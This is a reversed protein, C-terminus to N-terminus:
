QPRSQGRAQMQQLIFTYSVYYKYINAVYRVTEQGIDRAAIMEVNGFWKNPDLGRQEAMRRLRSIRAPGANYAAFAFLGRNIRDVGGEDKLQDEIFRLYKAGAEINRDASGQVGKIFVPPGEATSPKIQMVGVAGVPSVRTQDIGSEQYAQAALLLWPFDYKDGYRKFFDVTKQFRAVDANARANKVWKTNQFYKRVLINYTASGKSNAAIFANVAELLQPADKRVAWAIEGGSRLVVDRQVNMQTFLTSWLDAIHNDVVTAPILSANVMELLDDEELQEDAEVIRVPPRGAAKLRSNLEVLSEFYSSSKRVHVERGSLEEPTAVPPVGPALVLVERVDSAWPTSFTASKAREQTITLNAAAIDGLGAALGSFLQDHRVPIFAVHVAVTKMNLRDNLFKEFAKGAEYTVGRQEAKDLFYNTRNFSCLVRVFRRKVMADLDGRFPRLLAGEDEDPLAGDLHEPSLLEAPTAVAAASDPSPTSNAPSAAEGSSTKDRGCTTCLCAIAILAGFRYM